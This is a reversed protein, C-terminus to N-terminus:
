PAIGGVTVSLSTQGESKGVMIIVSKNDKSYALVGGRSVLSANPKWGRGPMEKEYFGIIKNPDTSGRFSVTGGGFGPLTLEVRQDTAKSMGRPIPITVGAIVEEQEGISCSSPSLGVLFLMLVLRIHLCVLKNPM